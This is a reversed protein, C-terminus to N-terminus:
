LVILEHHHNHQSVRHSFTSVAHITTRTLYREELHTHAPRLQPSTEESSM